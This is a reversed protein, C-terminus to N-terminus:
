IAMGLLFGLLAGATIPPLAPLAKPKKMVSLFLLVLAIAAGLEAFMAAKLGYSHLVSVSFVLPIVLDGGGLQFVHAKKAAGERGLRKAEAPSPAYPLAATFAMPTKTIEKAMYVMHKTVFVSIFDYTALLLMFVIVPMIGLSAGLVAGAGAVSFILALNQSLLSPRLIKYATLAAALALGPAGILTEFVVDSAFFIAFAELVRLLGKKYKIILIVLATTALIYVFLLGSTSVDEPNEVVSIGASILQSGVYIGLAQVSVFLAMLLLMVRKEDM